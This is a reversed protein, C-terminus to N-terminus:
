APAKIVADAAIILAGALFGGLITLGLRAAESKRKSLGGHLMTAGAFAVILALALAGADKIGPVFSLIAGFIFAFAGLLAVNVLTYILWGELQLLSYRVRYLVLDSLLQGVSMFFMLIATSTTAALGQEWWAVGPPQVGIALAGLLAGLVYVSTKTIQSLRTRVGQPRLRLLSGALILGILFFSRWHSQLVLQYHLIQGLWSIAPRVLPEVGSALLRTIRRYGDLAIQFPTILNLDRQIIGKELIDILSLGGVSMLAISYWSLDKVAAILTLRPRNKNDLLLRQVKDVIQPIDDPALGPGEEISAIKGDGGYRVILAPPQGRRAFKVEELTVTAGYGFHVQLLEELDSQDVLDVQLAGRLDLMTGIGDLIHNSDLAVYIESDAENRQGVGEM